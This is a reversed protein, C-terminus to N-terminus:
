KEKINKLKIQYDISQRLNGIDILPASSGKKAITAPSNPKWEGYVGRTKFAQLVINRAQTGLKHLVQEQKGDEINKIIGVMNKRLYRPFYTKIPHRLFSRMPIKQAPDGFEHISGYYAVTVEGRKTKGKKGTIGVQIYGTNRLKRFIEGIAGKFKISLGNNSM